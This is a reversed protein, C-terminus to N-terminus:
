IRFVIRHNSCDAVYITDDDTYVDWPNSLKNLGDGQGNGGAVLEMKHGNRMIM